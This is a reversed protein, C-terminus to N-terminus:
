TEGRLAVRHDIGQWVGRESFYCTFDLAAHGKLLSAELRVGHIGLGLPQSDIDSASRWGDFGYHLRFPELQEILLARGPPLTEIPADARWHWTSASPRQAHYRREVSALLEIPRGHQRAWLLKLFEAHAWVLPMASGTPKGPFLWRHPISASDWVQEPILGGPGTMRAMAELYPLPDRGLLVELHGREGTLLPWARGIGEGDFPAGDAHEGYGDDNYRHYATGLPTEVKLLRETLALTNQIRRDGAERLGARALYLYEMGILAAADITEGGRNRLDIRGCLGGGDAPPALRVYYGDIGNGAALPGNEVYTWDEIRENWYDALSLVYSAQQPPLHEAAAVLAVIEVTLTFPSIGSNEEWRDQPSGPGRQVIYRAARCIMGPVGGLGDLANQEGLRAALLIPFCVEDLQVGTWFPTGDPFYNQCWGGDERQTAVLYSLMHRASRVKGIAAMALGAEVADRTWILHYGGISDSTNGWPISLSAVLAGPFSKGDHVRLVTASIYAESLVAEPAEPIDLNEAWREWDAIFRERAAAVGEALSSRALTEAGEITNGFGIALTGSNEALEAMLAVNGDRAETYRWSMRGNRAFDQWGDSSGVFGASSKSFGCDARAFLAHHDKWAVLDAGALANNHEGSGGLHPALLAYLRVDKGELHFDVLVVDRLPDPVLELTLRYDVGEHVVRPLPIYPKPRSLTYRNIRKLEHWGSRGAVIFGLDRLQPEGASPWYIENVIGFGLTAWVRSSGLATTIVDKASSTWTPATGPGGPAPVSNPDTM